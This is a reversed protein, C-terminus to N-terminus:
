NKTKAICVIEAIMDTHTYTLTSKTQNEWLLSYRSLGVWLSSIYICVYMCLVFVAAM